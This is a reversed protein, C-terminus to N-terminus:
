SVREFVDEDTEIGQVRAQAALRDRLTRYKRLFLAEQLAQDVFEGPSVGAQRAAEDVLTKTTESLEITNPKM